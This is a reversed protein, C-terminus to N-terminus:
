LARLINEYTAINQSTGPSHQKNHQLSHIQAFKESLSFMPRQIIIFKNSGIDIKKQSFTFTGLGLVTVGQQPCLLSFHQIMHDKVATMFLSLKYCSVLTLDFPFNGETAAHAGRHIGLRCGLCQSCRCFSIVIYYPSVKLISNNKQM